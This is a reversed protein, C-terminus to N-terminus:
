EHGAAGELDDMWEDGDTGDSVKVASLEAPYCRTTNSNHAFVCGILVGGSLDVVYELVIGRKGDARHWVRMGQRWRRMVAGLEKLQEDIEIM